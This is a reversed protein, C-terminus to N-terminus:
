SMTSATVSCYQQQLTIICTLDLLKRHELRMVTGATRAYRYLPGAQRRWASGGVLLRKWKLRGLGFSEGHRTSVQIQVVTVLPRLRRCAAIESHSSHSERLTVAPALRLLWCREGSAHLRVLSGSVHTAGVWRDLSRNPMRQDPERVGTGACEPYRDSVEYM